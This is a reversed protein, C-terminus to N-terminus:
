PEGREVIEEEIAVLVEDPFRYGAERLMLLRAKFAELTGDTFSAGDHALGIPAMDSDQVAKLNASYSAALDAGKLSWDIPPIEGTHKQGAVHTVFGWDSEYCYLDCAWNDSSWRCYSM